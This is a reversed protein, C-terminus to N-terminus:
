VHLQQKLATIDAPGVRCCGGIWLAGQEKWDLSLKAFSTQKETIWGTKPDWREGSNPYVVWSLDAKKHSKASELLPKVLSAPCCNVGVAVLQTSRCAVQVAESFSRGSSINHIDKCSFSLWAKIEPFEKLVEVLAEAEKLGPITEMAVLDAGAKVLCQIQPRHWDKLEELTMKDEYAGTYESGDHLFAGYPGVSGAVLPERRNESKPSYSMFERVTEKALQVGSMMMQQAEEPRLGLYKVFGEITAQYTATTIVDSGSQLFRYHVDKIAQPNTHLLRASWLPDGQLQFGSAELETALGGDLILPSPDM